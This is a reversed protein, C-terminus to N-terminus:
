QAFNLLVPTESYNNQTVALAWEEPRLLSKAFAVARARFCKYSNRLPASTYNRDASLNPMEPGTTTVTYPLTMKFVPPNTHRLVFTKDGM